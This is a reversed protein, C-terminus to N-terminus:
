DTRKDELHGYAAEGLESLDLGTHEQTPDARLALGPVKNMIILILCTVGFSWAFGAAASALQYAVQIWHRELWGGHIKTPGSLSAMSVQAFVGTLLNGVLGGVGHVAFVDFADDYELYHKLRVGMNCAISGLFGIAVASPPSVYGSGPTISVLGAVVGSCFGLVSLKRSYRYDMFVWTLGGISAALNTVVCAMVAHINAALASGGNLGFWGFWIFCTGIVVNSMSHPRFDKQDGTRKGLVIAYAL